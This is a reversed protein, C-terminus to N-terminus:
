NIVKLVMSKLPELLDLFMVHFGLKRKVLLGAHFFLVRMFFHWSMHNFSFLSSFSLHPLFGFLPMTPFSFMTLYIHKSVISFYLYASTFEKELM